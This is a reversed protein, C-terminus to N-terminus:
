SIEIFGKKELTDFASLMDEKSADLVVMASALKLPDSFDMMGIMGILVLLKEWLETKKHNLAGATVPILMEDM